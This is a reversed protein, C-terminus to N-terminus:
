VYLLALFVVFGGVLLAGPLPTIRRTRLVPVVALTFLVSCAISLGAEMTYGTVLPSVVGCVGMALFVDFTNSQLIHGFLLMHRGRRAVKIAVVIDPLSTGVALASAALVADGVGLLASTWEIAEVIAVGSYYVVLVTVAVCVLLVLRPLTMLSAEIAADFETPQGSRHWRLVLWGLIGTIVLLGALYTWQALRSARFIQLDDRQVDAALFSFFLLVAVIPVLRALVRWAPARRPAANVYTDAAESPGDAAQAPDSESRKLEWTIFVGYLLLFVVAHWFGFYGTLYFVGTLAVSGVAFAVPIGLFRSVAPAAAFSLVGGALPAHRSVLRVRGESPVLVYLALVGLGFGAALNAIITGYITPVVLQPVNGFVAAVSTFLEPLSTGIGVIFSGIFYDKLALKRGLTSAIGILLDSSRLIM